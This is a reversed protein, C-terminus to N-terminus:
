GVEFVQQVVESSKVKRDFHLDLFVNFITSPEFRITSDVKSRTTKETKSAISYTNADSTPLPATQIGDANSISISTDTITFTGTSLLPSVELIKTKVLENQASATPADALEQATISSAAHSIGFSLSIACFAVWCFQIFLFIGIFFLPLVFASEVTSQGSDNHIHDHITKM